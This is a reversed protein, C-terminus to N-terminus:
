EKLGAVIRGEWKPPRVKLAAAASTVEDGTRQL